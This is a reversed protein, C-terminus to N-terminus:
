EKAEKDEERGTQLSRGRATAPFGMVAMGSASRSKGTKEEGYGHDDVQRWSWRVCGVIEEVGHDAWKGVVSVPM